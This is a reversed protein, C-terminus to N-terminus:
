GPVGNSIMGSDREDQGPNGLDGPRRREFAAGNSSFFAVGQESCQRQIREVWSSEMKRAGPGSEGGVIVRDIGTLGNYRQPRLVLFGWAVVRRGTVVLIRWSYITYRTAAASLARFSTILAPRRTTRALFLGSQAAASSAFASTATGSSNRRKRPSETELRGM